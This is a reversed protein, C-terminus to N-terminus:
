GGRAAARGRRWFTVGVVVATAAVALFGFILVPPWGPDLDDSSSAAADMDTAPPATDPVVVTFHDFYVPFISEAITLVHLDGDPLATADIGEGEGKPHGSTGVRTVDGTDLDVRYIGHGADDTSLWVAGRAVDAGQVREVFRDMALPPLPTWREDIDYRLLADGGFRDMSYAIGEDVTVFSNEHQSLEVADVFSLDAVDYWATAQVGMEYDPQELPAYVLGGAVDIDGIHNYGRAVWDPPIASGISTEVDLSDSLRALVNVGSLVWRDGARAVGQAYVAPLEQESVRRARETGAVAPGATLLGVALVAGVVVRRRVTAGSALRNVPVPTPTSVGGTSVVGVGTRIPM